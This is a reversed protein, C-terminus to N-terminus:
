NIQLNNPPENLSYKIPPNVGVFDANEFLFTPNEAKFM